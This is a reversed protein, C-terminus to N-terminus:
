STTSAKVKGYADQTRVWAKGVKDKKQDWTEPTAQSLEEAVSRLYIRSNNMEKMAFDWEDTRTASTMAARKAALEAIQGDVKAELLKLGASFHVRQDYTDDKIDTWSSAAIDTAVVPAEPVPTTVAAPKIPITTATSSPSSTEATREKQACGTTSFFASALTAALLHTLPSPKMPHTSLDFATRMFQRLSM